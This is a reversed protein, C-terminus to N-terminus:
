SWHVVLKLPRGSSLTVLLALNNIKFHCRLDLIPCKSSLDENKMDAFLCTLTRLTEMFLRLGIYHTCGRQLILVCISKTMSIEDSDTLSTHDSIAWNRM